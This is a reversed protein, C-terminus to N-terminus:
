EETINFNIKKIAEMFHDEFAQGKELLTVNIKIDKGTVKAIVGEIEETKSKVAM